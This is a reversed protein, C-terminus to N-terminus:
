CTDKWLLNCTSSFTPRDFSKRDFPAARNAKFSSGRENNVGNKGRAFKTLFNYFVLAWKIFSKVATYVYKSSRLHRDYIIGTSYIHKRDYNVVYSVRMAKALTTM